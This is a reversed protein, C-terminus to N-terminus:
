ATPQSPSQDEVPLDAGSPDTALLPTTRERLDSPLRATLLREVEAPTYMQSIHYPVLRRTHALDGARAAVEDLHVHGGLHADAVSRTADLYTTELVLVEAQLLEPALDLAELRTDGSVALLVRTHPQSLAIGKERLDRLEGEALGQFEPRLRQPHTVIAYGLAPVVHRVPLARLFRGGDLEVEQGPEMPQLTFDFPSGHLREWAQIIALFEACVPAPAFVRTPTHGYLNRMALYQALGGAHDMHAHTLALYKCRVTREPARGVDLAISWQPVRLWTEVGAVSAGELTVNLEPLAVTAQPSALEARPQRHRRDQGRPHPHRDRSMIRHHARAPAVDM